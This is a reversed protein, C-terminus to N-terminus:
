QHLWLELERCLLFIQLLQSFTLHPQRGEGGYPAFIPLGGGTEAGTM